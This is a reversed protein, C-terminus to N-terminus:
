IVLNLSQQLVNQDIEGHLRVTVSVNFATNDRDRDYMHLLHQQASSVSYEKEQKRARADVPQELRRQRQFYKADKKKM